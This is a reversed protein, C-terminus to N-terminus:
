ITAELNAEFAFGNGLPLAFSGKISGRCNRFVRSAGSSGPARRASGDTNLKLWGLHPPQRLECVTRRLKPTAFFSMSKSTVKGDTSGSCVLVDSPLYSASVQEIEEALSPYSIYLFQPLRWVRDIYYDSRSYDQWFNAYISPFILGLPSPTAWGITM